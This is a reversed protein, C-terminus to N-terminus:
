VEFITVGRLVTRLCRPRRPDPEDQDGAVLKPLSGVLGDVQWVAFTAAAGPALVGDGNRGVVRWGSRTHAAFAARESLRSGPNHHTMAALVAGWPDMPTVPSDSGFVLPVGVGALAALPNASLARRPGLRKAYMGETGGWALDFAPQVSAVVGYDVMAAIAARDPLEAHEVRHRGSRLREVGVRDAARAFGSMVADVAADGIVHFGGPLGEHVCAVLHDAIEDVTLYNEGTSANDRYPERLWATRSGFAGDVFLDGGAGTAGLERAKTVAGVEGWYGYVEPVGGEAALKLLQCFDEEGSVAPGGCEHVAAIGFGAARRLATEQAVRRSVASVM